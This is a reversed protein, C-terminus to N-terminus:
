YGLKKLLQNEKDKLDAIEKDILEIKKITQPIDIENKDEFTNVYLKINLNYDNEKIETLNTIHSYKEIELQNEYVNIIKEIKEESLIHSNDQKNYEQSADIFLINDNKSRNKKLILICASIKKPFTKEPLGIVADIYNKELLLTKRIEKEANTRSLVGQPMVVAMIGTDKLHYLMTEIFAYSAKSRPPLKKYTNFREDNILEKNADWKKLFPPHSVIVDMLPLDRKSTTSDENFIKFNKPAIDHMIMNIRAIDYNNKKIEQGYYCKVNEKDLMLLTSCSGCAGDYVNDFKENNIKVLKSLLLSIEIPTFSNKLLYKMIFNIDLNNITIENIEQILSRYLKDLNDKKDGSNIETFLDNLREDEFVINSISKNIAKIIKEENLINQYLNNPHIFFGLEKLSDSKIKEGYYEKNEENFAEQFTINYKFLKKNNEKEIKHSLYKYFIINLLNKQYEEFMVHGRLKETSHIIIDKIDM